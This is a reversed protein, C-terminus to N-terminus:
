RVEMEERRENLRSTETQERNRERVGWTESKREIERKKKRERPGWIKSSLTFCACRLSNM